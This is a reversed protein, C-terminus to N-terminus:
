RPLNKFYDKDQFAKYSCGIGNHRASSKPDCPLSGWNTTTKPHGMPYLKGAKIQFSFLDHGWANPKKNIGNVDVTLVLNNEQSGSNNVMLFMGDAMIMQGEDFWELTVNQSKNYTKYTSVRKFADGEVTTDADVCRDGNCTVYNLLYKRFVPLFTRAAFEKEWDGSLGEEYQMRQVAQSLVSYSKKFGAELEKGQTINLLAPITMAAVIGIIGLTILVEALTFGTYNKRTEFNM